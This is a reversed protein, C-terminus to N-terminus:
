GDETVSIRTTIDQDDVPLELGQYRNPLFSSHSDLPVGDGKEVCDKSLASGWPDDRCNGEM